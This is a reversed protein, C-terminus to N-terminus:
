VAKALRISVNNVRLLVSGGQAASLVQRTQVYNAGSGMQFFKKVINVM